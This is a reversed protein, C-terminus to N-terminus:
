DEILFVEPPLIKQLAHVDASRNYRFWESKPLMRAGGGCRVGALTGDAAIVASGSSGFAYDADTFWMDQLPDSLLLGPSYTLSGNANKYGLFRRIVEERATHPPYGWQWLPEHRQLPKGRIPIPAISPPELLKLVALDRKPHLYLIRVSGLPQHDETYIKIHPAEIGIPDFTYLPLNKFAQSTHNAQTHLEDTFWSQATVLHLNTLLHGQTSVLTATAYGTHKTRLPLTGGKALHSVLENQFGKAWDPSGVRIDLADIEQQTWGAQFIDRGGEDPVFGSWANAEEKTSFLRHHLIRGTDFRLVAPTAQEVKQPLYNNDTKQFFGQAM